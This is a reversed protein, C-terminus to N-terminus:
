ARATSLGLYYYHAGRGHDYMGFALYLLGDPGTSHPEGMLFGANIPLRYEKAAQDATRRPLRKPPLANLMEDYVLGDVEQGPYASFIGDQAWQDTTYISKNM